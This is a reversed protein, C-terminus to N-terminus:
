KLMKWKELVRITEVRPKVVYLVPMMHETMQLVVAKKPPDLKRFILMINRTYAADWNQLYLKTLFIRSICACIRYTLCYPSINKLTEFVATQLDRPSVCFAEHSKGNGHL